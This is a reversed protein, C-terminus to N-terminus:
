EDAGRDICDQIAEKYVEEWAEQLEEKSRYNRRTFHVMPPEHDFQRDNLHEMWDGRREKPGRCGVMLLCMLSIYKISKKM